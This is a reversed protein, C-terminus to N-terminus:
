YELASHLTPPTADPGPLDTPQYVLEGQLSGMDMAVLQQGAVLVSAVELVGHLSGVDMAVLQQGAALVSAVEVLGIAVEFPDIAVNVLVIVVEVPM